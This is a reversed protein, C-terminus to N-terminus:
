KLQITIEKLLDQKEIIDLGTIALANAAKIINNKCFDTQTELAFAPSPCNILKNETISISPYICPTLHSIAGIGLGYSSNKCCDINIIGSEKLNHALLRSLSKNTLLEQSPLEFLSIEEPISMIQSLSHILEVIKKEFIEAENITTAKLYFKAESLLLFNNSPSVNSISINDIFCNTTLGKLLHNLSNFVFLYSELSSNNNNNNNNNYKIKIPIIAMSTGSEANTIDCHPAIIIDIDEFCKEKTITLESGNSYEGPCGLVIVSGGSKSVVKSLGLASAVSISANANNGFIHGSKETATYKCIYCIKPHGIGFQAYFATPINCYNEKVNFGHTKLMNIIYASGKYEKYNTEPNNYLYNSLNYIDDKISDIYSIIEQKM